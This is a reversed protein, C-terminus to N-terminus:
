APSPNDTLKPQAIGTSAKHDASKRRAAKSHPQNQNRIAAPANM